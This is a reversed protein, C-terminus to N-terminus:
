APKLQQTVAAEGSKGLVKGILRQRFLPSCPHIAAPTSKAREAVGRRSGKVGSELVSAAVAERTRGCSEGRDDPGPEETLASIASIRSAQAGLDGQCPVPWPPWRNSRAVGQRIARPRRRVAANDKGFM